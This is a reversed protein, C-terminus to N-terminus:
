AKKTKNLGFELGCTKDFHDFMAIKFLPANRRNYQIKLNYLDQQYYRM